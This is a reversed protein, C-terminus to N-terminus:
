LVPVVKSKGKRRKLWELLIGKNIYGTDTMPFESQAPLNQKYIETDPEKSLRLSPFPYFVVQAAAHM